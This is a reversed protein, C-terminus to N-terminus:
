TARAREAAGESPKEPSFGTAAEDLSVAAQDRLAAYTLVRDICRRREAAVAIEIAADTAEERRDKEV